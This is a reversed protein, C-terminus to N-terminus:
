SRVPTFVNLSLCQESMHLDYPPSKGPCAPGDASADLEGVWGAAPTPPLFREADGYPIGRFAAVGGAEPPSPAM